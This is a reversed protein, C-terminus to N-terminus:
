LRGLTRMFQETDALDPLVADPKCALLDDVGSVHGTAVAVSRAGFHKACGIDDPTDGIVIFQAPQFEMRLHSSIRHAALLPLARRDFSQDGFAGPVDFHESLDALNVKYSATSEFNGTLLASHYRPNASIVALAERVGPLVHFETGNSTAREIECLYRNSIEQLSEWIDTRTFEGALAEAIYQLDTMGTLPVQDIQGATGFVAELVPRTYETFTTARASRLITGDIDWLLVRLDTRNM